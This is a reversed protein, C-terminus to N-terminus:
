LYAFAPPVLTLMPRAGGIAFMVADLLPVLPHGAVLPFPPGPIGPLQAPYAFPTTLRATRALARGALAYEASDFSMLAAGTRRVILDLHIVLVAIAFAALGALLPGSDPARTAGPADAPGRARTAPSSATM